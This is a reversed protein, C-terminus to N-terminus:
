NYINEQRTEEGRKPNFIRKLLRNEFVRNEFVRNEFVRNEFVRNEFV